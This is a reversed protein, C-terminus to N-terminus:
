SRFIGTLISSIISALFFSILIWKWLKSSTENGSKEEPNKEGSKQIEPPKLETKITQIIVNKFSDLKEDIDQRTKIEAEYRINNEALNKNEGVMCNYCYDQNGPVEAIQCKKCKQSM